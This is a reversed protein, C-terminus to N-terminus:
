WVLSLRSTWERVMWRGDPRQVKLVTQSNPVSVLWTPLDALPNVQTSTQAESDPFLLLQGYETALALNDPDDFLITWDPHYLGGPQSFVGVWGEAPVALENM